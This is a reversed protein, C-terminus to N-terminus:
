KQTKNIVNNSYGFFFHIGKSLRHQCQVMIASRKIISIYTICHKSVTLKMTGTFKKEGYKVIDHLESWKLNQDVCSSCVYMIQPVNM